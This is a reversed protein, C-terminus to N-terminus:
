RQGGLHTMESTFANYIYYSFTQNVWEGQLVENALCGEMVADGSM